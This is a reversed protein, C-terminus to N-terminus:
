ASLTPSAATTVSRASCARTRMASPGSAAAMRTNPYILVRNAGTDAVYLNNAQDVVLGQPGSLTQPSIQSPKLSANM